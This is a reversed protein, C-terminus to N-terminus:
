KPCHHHLKKPAALRWSGRALEAIEEWDPEIGTVNLSVWGHQGIYPTKFFRADELFVGQLKKEVKLAIHPEEPTHHLILFSKTAVRFVPHGHMLEESVSPLPLCIRRLNDLLQQYQMPAM